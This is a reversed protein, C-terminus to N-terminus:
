ITTEISNIRRVIDKLIQGINKPLFKNDQAVRVSVDYRWWWWKVQISQISWIFDISLSSFYTNLSVEKRDWVEIERWKECSADVDISPFKIESWRTQINHWEENSQFKEIMPNDWLSITDTTILLPPVWNNDKSILVNWFSEGTIQWLRSNINSDTPSLYNYQRVWWLISWTQQSYDLSTWVIRFEWDKESMKKLIDLFNYWADFELSIALTSNNIWLSIPLPYVWNLTSYVTNLTTSIPQIPTYISWRIVRYKMLWLRDIWYVSIWEESVKVDYIVGSWVTYSSWTDIDNYLFEIRNRLKIWQWELSCTDYAISFSCSWEDSLKKEFQFDIFDSLITIPNNNYDSIRVIMSVGHIVGSELSM